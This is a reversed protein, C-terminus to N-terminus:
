PAIPSHARLRVTEQAVAALALDIERATTTPGLTFLVASHTWPAELGIAELTPAAKGGHATCASGPSCAIGRAALALTLSEGEVWGVSVQVSGPLRGARPGNLRVDPIALLGDILRDSLAAMHAARGSMEAAAIRAAAGLAAIGVMNEAGARKGAEQLGGEILPHLRVGARVALAGIWPPAGAPWGGLSVADAGLADMDLPLLGGTEGADVHIRAEPRARRSAAILAPLDQVTGIEGQAHHVSVLATEGDVAAALGAPDIRGRGDVGVVTLAGGDRAMSRAASLVAPHEVATTVMRTGLARNAALIGKVALNRAETAGSTFIVGEHPAGVLEAVAARAEELVQAPRRAGQHLGAPGAYGDGVFELMAERVRPDLPAGAAHDLHVSM